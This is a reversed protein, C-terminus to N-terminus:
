TATVEADSAAAAARPGSEVGLMRHQLVPQKFASRVRQPIHRLWGYRQLLLNTLLAPLWGLALSVNAIPAVSCRIPIAAPANWNHRSQLEQQPLRAPAPGRDPDLPRPPWRNQGQPTAPVPGMLPSERPSLLRNGLVAHREAARETDLPLPASQLPFQPPGAPCPQRSSTSCPRCCTSSVGHQPSWQRSQWEFM